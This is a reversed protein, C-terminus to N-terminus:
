SAARQRRLMGLGLLGIGILAITTPEPVDVVEFSFNGYGTQYKLGIPNVNVSSGWTGGLLITFFDTTGAYVGGNAAGACDRAGFACIEVGPVHAPLHGVAWDARIMGGDNADDFTVSTANPDIGFAFGTLREGSQGTQQSTNTLSVGVNLQNSNLGSVTMRGHGTLLSSGTDYSWRFAFPNNDKSTILIAHSATSLLTSAVATAVLGLVRYKSM